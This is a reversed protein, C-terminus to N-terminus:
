VAVAPRATRERITPCTCRVVTGGDRPSEIDIHGGLARARYRMIKLGLGDRVAHRGMGCGDDAVTLTLHPFHYDLALQIAGAGAHKAANTVAEQAIRYMSEVTAHDVFQDNTVGSLRVSVDIGSTVRVSEALRRIAVVLGAIGPEIPSLGHAISRASALAGRAVEAVTALETLLVASPTDTPRRALAALLLSLGTLEQGLGDHLNMGLQHQERTSAELLSRELLRQETVDIFIALHTGLFEGDLDAAHVISTRRTGDKCTLSIEVPEFPMRDRIADEIHRQWTAMVWSRYQPDPYARPWFADRTPTDEVTYGFAATFAPNFYSIRGSDEVLAYPVPSAEIVARFRAESLLAAAEAAKRDTIDSHSGLLRVPQGVVNRLTAARALMWRYSGDRHRLRYEAEYAPWPPERAAALRAMAAPLDEPHVRSKWTEVGNELEGDEYGLQRKWIASYFVEDTLLNWDWIGTNSAETALALRANLEHQSEKARTAETVDTVIVFLGLVEGNQLDPLYLSQVHRIDGAPTKFIPTFVQREGRLAREMYPVRSEYLKEGLLERPSLAALEAPSRGFWELFPRNGYHCRLDRDWYSIMVPMADLAEALRPGPAPDAPTRIRQAELEAIRRRLGANEAELQQVRSKLPM